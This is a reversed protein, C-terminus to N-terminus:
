PGNGIVLRPSMRQQIFRWFLDKVDEYAGFLGTAHRKLSITVVTNTPRPAPAKLFPAANARIVKTALRDTGDPNIIGYDSDEGSRFGGPYWWWYIGNSGSAIMMRYFTSIVSAQERLREPPSEDLGPQWATKGAEKWIVPLSPNIAHAYAVQFWGAKTHEWEGMRGYGEPAFFDVAKSLGRFDYPLNADWNFTPNSTETMRFSVLHNPDVGRVLKRAAAYREGVLSDVFARYDVVYKTWSGDRILEVDSAGEFV